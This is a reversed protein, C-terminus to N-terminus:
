NEILDDLREKTLRIDYVYKVITLVAITGTIAIALNKYNKPIISFIGM